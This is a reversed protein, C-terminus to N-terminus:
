TTMSKIKGFILVCCYIFLMTFLWILFVDLYRNFRKIIFQKDYKAIIKDRSKKNSYNIKIYRCTITGSLIPVLLFFLRPNTDIISSMLPSIVLFIFISYAPVIFFSLFVRTDNHHAKSPGKRIFQFSLYYIIDFVTKM